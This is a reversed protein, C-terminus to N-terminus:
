RDDVRARILTRLLSARRQRHERPVLGYFAVLGASAAIQVFAFVDGYLTYFTKAQSLHVERVLFGQVFLEAGAAGKVRGTIRGYPDIFASVGTNSARAISIRNEAARFVTMALFQHPAATIGFWTENTASVMFRAGRKVFERFVDPFIAEWCIVVGFRRDSVSFLSYTDGPVTNGVAGAIVRPWHVVDKLPEYEGFPVLVIKRYEGEIMGAPSVLFMSNYIKNRLESNERNGTALKAYQSSGVLLFTKTELALRNIAHKLEPEHRVDGPVATEPWVILTPANQAAARTLMAHREMITRRNMPVWQEDRTINGQVVAIPIRDPALPRSLVIRGYGYTFILLISVTLCSWALPRGYPVAGIAFNRRQRWYSVIDAILANVLVILFSLGYVGTLSTVQIMSSYSYQSHGLLMWPLALFSAHARLYELAVWLPPAVFIMPLPTRGRISAVILGFVGFYLALYVALLGHDLANYNKVTLMWYFIGTFFILGATFSLLFARGPTSRDLCCFLPSLAAWALIGLDFQPFSVVLLVGSVCALSLKSFPRLWWM